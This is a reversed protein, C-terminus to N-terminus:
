SDFLFLISLLFDVHGLGGTGETPTVLQTIRRTVKAAVHAAGDDGGVHHQEIDVDNADIGQVVCGDDGDDLDKVGEVIGDDARQYGRTMGALATFEVGPNQAAGNRFM